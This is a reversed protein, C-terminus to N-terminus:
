DLRDVGIIPQYEAHWMAAEVATELNEPVELAEGEEIAARAVAVAVAKSVPRLDVVRPLLSAGPQSVDVMGAVTHAAAALMGDTVHRARTVITGLGIGPFVLANNSQGIVYSTREYTVPQFPSGTTVLARGETWHILDSPTAEALPTPNSLPFIIPREVGAAMARVVEESFAGSVASTGILVTPKVRRVTELLSIGGADREWGQTESVPRAFPQQFDRLDPMDDTLLGPRDILWVQRNAAELSLGDQVMADRIQEAIGVGATGAGFVILRQDRMPIGSAQVAAFLAALVIAGTGQMDDNFTRVEHRYRALIRRANIASFDEWHLLANPFLRSATRVYADIFADYAAGRVRPHRNGLYMPDNQLSERDTGVDLMVPIVRSPDIGGAATYVILKGISINMGGVGWDGIGLIAEGDTAVLLDVEDPALGYNLFAQEIDEPANIDLYVGRPRRYEHSFQQIATGVTPTYVIPLMEDLHESLVKYFLVENRDHLASLNLNKQLDSTQAAYQKYARRAQQELTLTGPPLLGQLGLARREELTFATGKNLRPTTLLTRGRLVTEYGKSTRRYLKM